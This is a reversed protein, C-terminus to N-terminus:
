SEPREFTTAWAQLQQKWEPLQPEPPATCPRRRPRPYLRRRDAARQAKSRGPGPKPRLPGSIRVMDGETQAVSRPGPTAPLIVVQGTDPWRIRHHHGASWGLYEWGATEARDLLEKVDKRSAM